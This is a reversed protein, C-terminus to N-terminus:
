RQRLVVICGCCSLVLRCKEKFFVDMVIGTLLTLCYKIQCISADILYSYFLRSPIPHSLTGEKLRIKMQVYIDGEKVNQHRGNM